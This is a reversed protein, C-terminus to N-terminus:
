DGRGILFYVTGTSISGAAFDAGVWGSWCAQRAVNFVSILDSADVTLSAQSGTDDTLENWDTVTGIGDERQWLRITGTDDIGEAVITLNFGHQSKSVPFKITFDTDADVKYVTVGNSDASSTSSVGGLPEIGQYSKLSM